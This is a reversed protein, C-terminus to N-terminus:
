QINETRGLRELEDAVETLQPYDRQLRELLQRAQDRQGREIHLLARSYLRVGNAPVERGASLGPLNVGQVVRSALANIISYLQERKDRLRATHVIQQTEVNVITADIRFDGYFDRFTGYVVYRAGVRDGVLAATEPTIRGPTVNELAETASALRRRDVVRIHQSRALETIVLQQLGLRLAEFAEADDGFSGGNAFRIVAMTHQLGTEQAGVAAPMAAICLWAGLAFRLKM